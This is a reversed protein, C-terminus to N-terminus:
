EETPKDQPPEEANGTDAVQETIQAPPLQRVSVGTIKVGEPLHGTLEIYRLQEPTLAALEQLPNYQVIEQKEVLLGNLKAIMNLAQNASRLDPPLQPNGGPLGKRNMAEDFVRRAKQQLELFLAEKGGSLEEVHYAVTVAESTLRGIEEITYEYEKAFRYAAKSDWTGALVKELIRERIHADRLLKDDKRISNFVKLRESRPKKQM